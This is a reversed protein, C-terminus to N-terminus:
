NCLLLFAVINQVVKCVQLLIKKRQVQKISVRKQIEKWPYEATIDFVQVSCQVSKREHVECIGM